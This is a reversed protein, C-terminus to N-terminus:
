QVTPALSVQSADHPLRLVMGIKLTNGDRLIDRNMGVIQSWRATRGLHNEAIETLTDGKGIRYFPQNNPGVFYGSELLSEPSPHVDIIGAMKPYRQELVDTSPVLVFMGPKMRDPRPIRHKNYEALAAFYRATGFHQRSITWYNEGSQVEHVDEQAPPRASKNINNSNTLPAPRSIPPDYTTQTQIPSLPQQSPAFANIAPAPVPRQTEISNGFPAPQPSDIAPIELNDNPFANPSEKTSQPTEAPNEFVSSKPPSMRPTTADEPFPSIAPIDPNLLGPETNQAQTVQQDRIIPRRQSLTKQPQPSQLGRTPTSAIPLPETLTPQKPTPQKQIPALNLTNPAPLSTVVTTAASTSAELSQTEKPESQKPLAAENQKPIEFLGLTAPVKPAQTAKSTPAPVPTAWTPQQVQPANDDAYLGASLSAGSLLCIFIKQKLNKIGFTNQANM